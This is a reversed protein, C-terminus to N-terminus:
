EVKKRMRRKKPKPEDDHDKLEPTSRLIHRKMICTLRVEDNRLGILPKKIRNVEAHVSEIGQEGYLGLQHKTRSM